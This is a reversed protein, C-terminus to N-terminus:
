LISLILAFGAVFAGYAAPDLLNVLFIALRSPSRLQTVPPM